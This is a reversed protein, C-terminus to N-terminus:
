CGAAGRGGGRYTLIPMSNTLMVIYWEELIKYRQLAVKKPNGREHFWIV